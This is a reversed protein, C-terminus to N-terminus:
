CEVSDKDFFPCKSTLLWHMVCGLSFIDCSFGYSEGREVEPAIFGDTGIRHNTTTEKGRLLLAIGLDALSAKPMSVFKSLDKPLTLKEDFLINTPKIDRHVIGCVTHLDYLAIVIDCM